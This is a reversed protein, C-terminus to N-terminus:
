FKFLPLNEGRKMPVPFPALQEHLTQWFTGNHSGEVKWTVPDEAASRAGRATTFSFGDALIPLPFALVLAKKYPDRFGAAAAGVIDAISGGWDGMPNTAKAHGIAIESGRYFLSFRGLSVADAAASRTGLCRFRIYKYAAEEQLATRADENAAAGLGVQAPKAHLAAARLGLTQNRVATEFPTLPVAATVPPAGMGKRTAAGRGEARALPMAYMDQLAFNQPMNRASDRGFAHTDLARVEKIPPPAITGGTPRAQFGERLAADAAVRKAAVATPPPWVGAAQVQAPTAGGLKQAADYTNGRYLLGGKKSADLVAQAVSTVEGAYKSLETASAARAETAFELPKYLAPTNPQINVGKDVEAEELSYSCDSPDMDVSFEFTVGRQVGSRGAPMNKAGKKANEVMADWDVDAQLHCTNEGPTVVKTVRLIMGPYDPDSNYESVLKYLVDTDECTKRRQECLENNETSLKDEAPLPKNLKVSAALAPITFAPSLVRGEKYGNTFFHSRARLLANSKDNAYNYATRLDGNRGDSATVNIYVDPDLVYGPNVAPCPSRNERMGLLRYDELALAENAGFLRAGVNEKYGQWDWKCEPVSPASLFRFGSLDFVRENAYWDDENANYTFIAHRQIGTLGAVPQNTTDDYVTEKWTYACQGPRDNINLAGTVEDVVLTGSLDWQTTGAPYALGSEPDTVADVYDAMARRVVDPNSCLLPPSDNKTYRTVPSFNVNGPDSGSPVDIGCNLGRIFSTVVNGDLTFGTFMIKGTVSNTTYFFRGTMGQAPPRTNETQALQLDGLTTQYNDKAEDVVDSTVTSVTVKTFRSTLTNMKTGLWQPFENVDGHQTMDFRLDVITSGLTFADYIYTMIFRGNTLEYFTQALDNLVEKKSIDLTVPRFDWFSENFGIVRATGPRPKPGICNIASITPNGCDNIGVGGCGSLVSQRPYLSRGVTANTSSERVYGCSCWDAGLQWADLLEQRTAVRAGFAACVGEAQAPSNQYGSVHFVEPFSTNTPVELERLASIRNRIDGDNGAYKERIIRNVRSYVWKKIFSRAPGTFCSFIDPSLRMMIDTNPARDPNAIIRFKNAGGTKDFVQIAEPVFFAKAEAKRIYPQEDDWRVMLFKEVDNPSGLYVRRALELSTDLDNKVAGEATKVPGYVIATVFNDANVATYTAPTAAFWDYMLNVPASSDRSAMTLFLPQNYPSKKPPDFTKPKQELIGDKYMYMAPEETPAAFDKVATQDMYTDLSFIREALKKVNPVRVTSNGGYQLADLIPPLCRGPVPIKNDLCPPYCLNDARLQLGAPCSIPNYSADVAQAAQDTIRTEAPFCYKGVPVDTANPCPGYCRQYETDYRLSVGSVTPCKFAIRQAERNYTNLASSPKCERTVRDPEFGEPCPAACRTNDSYTVTQRQEELATDSPLKRVCMDFSSGYEPRKTAYYSGTNFNIVRPTGPKPKIGMCNVGGKYGAWDMNGCGQVAVSSGCGNTATQMPYQATTISANTSSERVWGCSCWQAGLVWADYLEQKTAVRAGYAACIGEAQGATNEYSNVHFVEANTLTTRAYDAPCGGNQLPIVDRYTEFTEDGKLDCYTYVDQEVLYDIDDVTMGKELRTNQMFYDRTRRAPAAICRSDTQGATEFRKVDFKVGTRCSVEQIRTTFNKSFEDTKDLGTFICRINDTIAKTDTRETAYGSPCLATCMGHEERLRMNIQYEQRLAASLPVTWTMTKSIDWLNLVFGNLREACPRGDCNGKRNTIVIREIQVERGLDIWISPWSAWGINQRAWDDGNNYNDGYWEWVHLYALNDNIVKSVRDEVPGYKFRNQTAVMSNTITLPRGGATGDTEFVEFKELHLWDNKGEILLYRTRTTGNPMGANPQSNPVRKEYRGNNRYHDRLGNYDHWAYRGGKDNNLDNYMNRYENFLFRATEGVRNDTKYTTAGADYFRWNHVYRRTLPLRYNIKRNAAILYVFKGELREGNENDQRGLVTVSQLEYEEGLDVIWWPNNAGEGANRSHYLGNRDWGSSWRKGAKNPNVQCGCWQDYRGCDTKGGSCQPNEYCDTAYVKKGEAVNNGNEDIAMVLSLAMHYGGEVRIYRTKLARPCSYSLNVGTVAQPIANPKLCKSGLGNMKDKCIPFCTPQRAPATCTTIKTTPNTTCGACVPTGGSGDPTCEPDRPGVPDFQFKPDCIPMREIPLPTTPLASAPVCKSGQGISNRPCPPYCKGQRLQRTADTCYYTDRQQEVGVQVVVQSVSNMYTDIDVSKAPTTQFFGEFVTHYKKVLVTILILLGAIALGLLANVAWSGSM